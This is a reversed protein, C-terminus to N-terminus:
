FDAYLYNIVGNERVRSKWFNGENKSRQKMIDWGIYPQFYSSPTKKWHLFFAKKKNTKKKKASYLHFKSMKARFYIYSHSLDLILAM